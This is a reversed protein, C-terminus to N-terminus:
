HHFMESSSVACGRKARLMQLFMLRRSGGSEALLLAAMLASWRMGGMCTCFVWALMSKGLTGSHLTHADLGGSQSASPLYQRGTPGAAWPGLLLLVTSVTGGRVGVCLVECSQAVLWWWKSVQM